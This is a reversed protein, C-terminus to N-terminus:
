VMWGSLVERACFWLFEEAPAGPLQVDRSLRQWMGPLMEGLAWFHRSGFGTVAAWSNSFMRQAAPEPCVMALPNQEELELPFSCSSFM